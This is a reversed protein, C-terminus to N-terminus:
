GGAMAKQVLGAVVEGFRRVAPGPDADALEVYHPFCVETLPQVAVQACCIGYRSGLRTVLARLASASCETPLGDSIMVLLRARRRSARAESAAYYLAGADNNGGGPTLAHVACRAADGADFMTHDNFGFLRLDVGPMGKAAEALMAGFLRAKEINDRTQMSGSCDIIVALYLDTRLRPERAILMRPDGRTVVALARARDFRRGRLRFREPELTLGLAELFRRMQRAALAVQAAYRAHAAPDRPVKEVTRILDFREDPSVNIWTRGRTGAGASGGSREPDLVREIERELEERTIGEGHVAAEAESGEFSEHPGLSEVLQTQWGFLARLQRALDLLEPMTRQRIGKCLALGAAVLPDGHRDGLGLRLARFFRSFSLGTREMQQLLVGSAVRVCGEARAVDLRTTTLVTFAGGGLSELLGPVPLDQEAHQFAHAGLRKLRDGYSADLGRLNRELHEDAVTNLLGFIGEAEAAKWARAAEAGRHYLHHGLEHLILGEVIARGHPVRRLIPLPSVYVRSEELRTYGLSQGTTMEVRFLRGTLSRGTHIGWAFTEALVRLKEGRREGRV